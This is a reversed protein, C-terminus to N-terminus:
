GTLKQRLLAEVFNDKELYSRVTKLFNEILREAVNELEASKVGMQELQHEYTIHDGCGEAIERLEDPLRTLALPFTVVVDIRVRHFDGYYRNSRNSFNIVAGNELQVSNALKIM